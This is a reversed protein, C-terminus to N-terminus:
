PHAAIVAVVITVASGFCALFFGWLGGWLRRMKARRDTEDDALQRELRERAERERDVEGALMKLDSKTALESVTEKLTHEFREGVKDVLDNAYTVYEPIEPM